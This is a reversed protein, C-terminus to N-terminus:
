EEEVEKEDTQVADYRPMLSPVGLWERTIETEATDASFTIGRSDLWPKLNIDLSPIGMRSAVAGELWNLKASLNPCIM